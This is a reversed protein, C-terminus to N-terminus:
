GQPKGDVLVTVREDYFALRDRIAEAGPLPEPYYWVVDRHVGSATVVDHYSAMGKHPCFTHHDSPRLADACVDGPPLYWRDRIRSEHLVLADTSDAIVEGDVVVQVRGECPKTEM